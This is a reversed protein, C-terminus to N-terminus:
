ENKTCSHTFHILRQRMLIASNRPMAMSVFRMEFITIVLAMEQGEIFKYKLACRMPPLQMAPPAFFYLDALTNSNSGVM